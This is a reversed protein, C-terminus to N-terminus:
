QERPKEGIRIEKLVFPLAEGDASRWTGRFTDGEQTGDWQGSVDTGNVSEEMFVQDEDTEGALLITQSDGFLFYEGEIGVEPAAKPRVKAQIQREGLTGHLVVPRDFLAAAGFADAGWAAGCLLAAGALTAAAARRLGRGPKGSGPRGM